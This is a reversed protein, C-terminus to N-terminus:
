AMSISHNLDQLILSYDHSVVRAAVFADIGSNIKKRRLPCLSPHSSSTVLDPDGPRSGWQAFSLSGFKNHFEIVLAKGRSREGTCRCFIMEPVGNHNLFHFGWQQLEM